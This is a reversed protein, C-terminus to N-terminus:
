EQGRITYERWYGRIGLYLIINDDQGRITYERWYVRIGLYLIINDNKDESLTNEGTCELVQFFSLLIM